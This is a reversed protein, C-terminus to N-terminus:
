GWAEQDTDKLQVWLWECATRYLVESRERLLVEWSLRRERRRVRMLELQLRQTLPASPPTLPLPLAASMWWRSGTWVARGIVAPADPLGDVPGDPTQRPSLPLHPEVTQPGTIRWLMPAARAIARIAMRDAQSPRPRRKIARAWAPVGPPVEPPFAMAAAAVVRVWRPLEQDSWPGLIRDPAILGVQPLQNETLDALYGDTILGGSPPTPRRDHILPGWVMLARASEEIEAYSAEGNLISRYCAEFRDDWSAHARADLQPAVGVRECHRLYDQHSGGMKLGEDGAWPDRGASATPWCRDLDIDPIAIGRVRKM